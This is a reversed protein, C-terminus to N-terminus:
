EDYWRKAEPVMKDIYNIDEKNLYDIYGNPKGRRIRHTEPNQPNATLKGNERALFHHDNFQKLNKRINDFRCKEHAKIIAEKDIKIKFYKLIDEWICNFLDEYRIELQEVGDNIWMSWRRSLSVAGYRSRIFSPMNIERMLNEKKKSQYKYHFYLSVLIDHPKRVLLLRQKEPKKRFPQHKWKTRIPIGTLEEYIKFFARIWIRGSKPYSLVLNM